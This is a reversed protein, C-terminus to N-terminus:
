FPLEEAIEECIQARELWQLAERLNDNLEAEAAWEKYTEACSQAQSKGQLNRRLSEEGTLMEGRGESPGKM